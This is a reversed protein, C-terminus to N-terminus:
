FKLQTETQFHTWLILKYLKIKQCTVVTFLMQMDSILIYYMLINLKTVAIVNINEVAGMFFCFCFGFVFYYIIICLNCVLTRNGGEIM